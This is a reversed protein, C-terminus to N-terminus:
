RRDSSWAIEGSERAIGRPLTVYAPVLGAVDDTDGREIRRCGLRLLAAGLGDRAGRGIEVSRAGISGGVALDVAVVLEGAEAVITPVDTEAIVRPRGVGEPEGRGPEGGEPRWRYRAVYRDHPGAPMVVTMESGPVAVGGADLRWAADALALTSPIGAIPRGLGHALAKATAIGVRLGTFAGPGTGVVVAAVRGLDIGSGTLMRDLTALVEQGHRFGCEWSREAIVEGDLTGAAVAAHRTATDIALVVDPPEVTV